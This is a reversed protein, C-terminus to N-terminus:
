ILGRKTCELKAILYIKMLLNSPVKECILAFKDVDKMLDGIM